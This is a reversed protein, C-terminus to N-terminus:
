EVSAAADAATTDPGPPSLRAARDLAQAREDAGAWRYGDAIASLVADRGRPLSALLTGELFRDVTEDTHARDTRAWYDVLYAIAQWNRRAREASLQAQVGTLGDLMYALPDADTWASSDLVPPKVAGSTEAALNLLAEAETRILRPQLHCNDRMIDWGIIGQRAVARVEAETDRLAVGEESAIRRILGNVRSTARDVDVRQIDIAQQMRVLADAADGRRALWTGLVFERYAQTTEDRVGEGASAEIRLLGELTGIAEDHAGSEYALEASVFGPDALAADSVPPPFWLNAAMTALVLTTDRARAEAAFTRLFRELRRLRVRPDPDPSGELAPAPLLHALGSVLRSHGLWARVRLNRESAPPPAMMWNHGFLVIVADVQYDLVESARRQVHELSSGGDACNLIEITDDAKAVQVLDSAAGAIMTGTSEGVFAVRTTRQRREMPYVFDSGTHSLRGVAVREGDRTEIAACPGLYGLNREVLEASQQELQSVPALLRWALEAAALVALASAAHFLVRRM